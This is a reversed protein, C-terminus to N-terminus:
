KPILVLTVGPSQSLETEVTPEWATGGGGENGLCFGLTGHNLASKVGFWGLSTGYRSKASRLGSLV